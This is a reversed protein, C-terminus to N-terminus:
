SRPRRDGGTWSRPAGETFLVYEPMLARLTDAVARARHERLLRSRRAPSVAALAPRRRDGLLDSLRVPEPPRLEPDDRVSAPPGRGGDLVGGVAPLAPRAALPARGTA